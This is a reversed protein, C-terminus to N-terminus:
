RQLRGEQNGGPDSDLFWPTVLELSDGKLFNSDSGTDKNGENLVRGFIREQNM